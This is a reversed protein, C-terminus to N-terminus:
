ATAPIGGAPNVCSTSHVVVETISWFRCVISNAVTVTKSLKSKEGSNNSESSLARPGIATAFGRGTSFPSTITVSKSMDFSPFTGITKVTFANEENFVQGIWIVSPDFTCDSSNDTAIEAPPELVTEIAVM